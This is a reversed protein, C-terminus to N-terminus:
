SRVKVAHGKELLLGNLYVEKGEKDTLFVDALYRDYKDSKVTKVLVPSGPVPKDVGPTPIGVVGPTTKLMKEVFEKAEMGDATAIEPTDIGRLRLKQVTRFGFGLDVVAKITDGDIVELVKAEYTFLDDESGRKQLSPNPSIEAFDGEGGKRFPSILQVIDGEKFADDQPAALPDRKQSEEAKPKLIVSSLSLYNSFGLDLVREGKEVGPVVRYTYPIGPKAVLRESPETGTRALQNIRQVESRIRKVDWDEDAAKRSIQERQVPDNLSLLERYDSWTLKGSTPSIPYARAFRLMYGLETDSTGLDKSLRLLVQKGYDAREKHYLIHEDILKGTEWAERVKSQEIRVQSAQRAGRIAAILEEYTKVEPLAQGSSTSPAEAQLATPVMLILM